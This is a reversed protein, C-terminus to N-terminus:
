FFSAPETPFTIPRTGEFHPRAHSLVYASVDVAEQDSLTGGRGLPMNAKVFAPMKTNMGAGDNFSTPGWLPPFKAAANGAGDAGHCASCQAAYIKAGNAADPPKPADVTVFGQDPFGRGIVAGQSLWTVYASLAIIERSNPPPPTGNMSYLFCEDLRDQLTIFRKARKNWQPFNAAIGLLSGGHPKTGADLHCADCSMGARVYPGANAQTDTLLARGYRILEGQPGPPITARAAAAAPDEVASAAHAHVFAGIVLAALAGLALTRPFGQM